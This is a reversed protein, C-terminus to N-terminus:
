RPILDSLGTQVIWEQGSAADSLIIQSAQPWRIQLRLVNNFDEGTLSQLDPVLVSTEKTQPNLIYLPLFPNKIGSRNEYAVLAVLQEEPSWAANGNQFYAYPLNITIEDWDALRILKVKRSSYQTILLNKGKPSISFYRLNSGSGPVMVTVSGNRRDLRALRFGNAFYDTSDVYGRGLLYVYPGGPEWFVPVYEAHDYPAQDVEAAAFQIQWSTQGDVTVFHTPPAPDGPNGEIAWLWQGDPSMQVPAPGTPTARVARTMDPTIRLQYPQLLTMGPPTATLTPTPTYNPTSTQSPAATAPVTDTKTVVRTPTKTAAPKTPVPSQASSPSDASSQACASLGFLSFLLISLAIIKKM